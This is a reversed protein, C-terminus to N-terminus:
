RLPVSRAEQLRRAFRKVYEGTNQDELMRKVWDQPVEKEADISTLSNILLLSAEDSIHNELEMILAQKGQTTKGVEYLAHAATIRLSSHRDLMDVLVEAHKPRDDLNDIEWPDAFTDYLKETPQPAKWFDNHCGLPKGERWADQWAVWSPMSLCYCSYPAAPLHSTFRRIYKFRGDTLGRRMGVIEDLLTDHYIALDSRVEPLDPLYPPLSLTSVDLRTQKPIVGRKRNAAVKEPFLSSEHSVTLNFISFFSSGQPRNKYHAKGSCEDWISRDNGKRNYDTKANNTCYYGMERLYSVYPRYISPISYRSRMHQTGQTVAYAGSLITSRAIACVPANSYAHNFQTSEEALADLRPTKADLNGHCGLWHAANDESTIWLINPSVVNDIEDDVENDAPQAYAASTIALLFISWFFTAYSKKTKDSVARCIVEFTL